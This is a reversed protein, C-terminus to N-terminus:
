APLVGVLARTTSSGNDAVGLNAMRTTGGTLGRITLTPSSFASNFAFNSTSGTKMSVLINGNTYIQNTQGLYLNGPNGDNSTTNVGVGIATGTNNLYIVNNKAFYM